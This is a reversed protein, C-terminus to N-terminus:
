NDASDRLKKTLLALREALFDANEEQFKESGEFQIVEKPKGDSRMVIHDVAWQEAKLAKEWLLEALLRRRTKEEKIGPPIEDGLKRIYDSITRGPPRGSPNGSIGKKFPM